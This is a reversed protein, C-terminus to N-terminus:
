DNLTAGPAGAEISEALAEQRSTKQQRNTDREMLLIVGVTTNDSGRLPSGVVRIAIPRGRLNVAALGIEQPDKRGNLANRIMPRLQDTCLGIDLNLFHQGVAEERRLGWMDEATRNSAQVQLDPTLVTVGVWLSGLIAELFDNANDLERTRDHLEDNMSQLEDNTAQLEENMTELEENSSQLEENTTELEEVTSQLEENTTELEENTSQLEEYATELQRNAQELEKRLRYAETIDHFVVSVGLLRSANDVLPTVQTELHFVQGGRAYQVDSVRLSRREVQAQEIYGRLEVPRYSLELDRFPRGVDRASVGFRAEAERSTMAVLGDATLVIQALPTALLSENRLADLGSLDQTPILSSAEALLMGRAPDSRAVKHFLRRKLDLPVFLMSHSLLMEAKGLFLVGHGSLAFHFRSLIRAQTEANFYMLTNRCVLLDIRSIPADQVLDNRGFIVSRRLDKRFTYRGSAVEFYKDLLDSPLGRIDREDYSAHRAQALSEDDVDTAYIKVRERFEDFGLREALLIAL